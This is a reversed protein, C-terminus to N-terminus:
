PGTLTLHAVVEFRHTQPFLDVLSLRMIRYRDLLKRIDRALTAPDCSVITLRPPSLRLLEATADRGLGARPPDAIILDPTTDFDRLFAEASAKVPGIGPVAQAANWELDRYAPGGREVADVRKFRQALPVSFLGVGAYLDVAHEGAADGLVENVLADMLFRNVQFFSGRSIRYVHGAASYDIAGLALSPLFSACWEFFRAAVPRASDQITLQLESENTFLEISCVFPPWQPQRVAIQLKAIAENLLPSSIPCHDISCLDHSGAKHFGSKGAAFHLQIRNRYHWPDASLVPIPDNYEIGGLRHLTERLILQKQELQFTYQAHQYQCGGCNAFYECFPTVREPAPEVINILSGRLLGANVRRPSVVVREGPLVYPALLVQGDVHALGDGGYVLKEVRAEVSEQAKTNM